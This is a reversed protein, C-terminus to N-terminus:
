YEVPVPDLSRWLYWTAVSRWPRWREGIEALVRRPQKEGNFYRLFVARQLGIDDLPYVDPRMLNFILFMEATWRGIGRVAVLEAIIADDDLHSWAVPQLQGNLFHRALDNLYEIKRQSLGCGALGALGLEAVRGPAVEGLVAVLRAWVADAAKVSIQQGVISRALTGFPDGRSVLSVGPYRAVLEAMQPDRGALAEAAQPWYHPVM